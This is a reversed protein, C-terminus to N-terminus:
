SANALLSALQANVLQLTAKTDDLLTNLLRVHEVASSQLDRFRRHLAAITTDGAGDRQAAAIDTALKSLDDRARTTFAAIGM